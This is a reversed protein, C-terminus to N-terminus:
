PKNETGVIGRGELGAQLAAAPCQGRGARSRRRLGVEGRRGASQWRCGGLHPQQVQSGRPDLALSHLSFNFMMPVYYWLSYGHIYIYSWM